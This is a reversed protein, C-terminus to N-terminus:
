PLDLEPVTAPILDVIFCAGYALRVYRLEGGFSRM